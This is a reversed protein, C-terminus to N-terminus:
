TNIELVFYGCCKCPARGRINSTCKNHNNWDRDYEESYKVTADWEEDTVFITYQECHEDILLCEAKKSLNRIHKGNVTSDDLIYFATAKLQKEYKARKMYLRICKKMLSDSEEDPMHYITFIDEEKVEFQIKNFYDNLKNVARECKINLEEMDRM